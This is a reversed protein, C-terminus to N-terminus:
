PYWFLLGLSQEAETMRGYVNRCTPCTPVHPLTQAQAPTHLLTHTCTHSYACVNALTHGFVSLLIASVRKRGSTQSHVQMVHIMIQVWITSIAPVTVLSDCCRALRDWYGQKTHTQVLQSFLASVPVQHGPIETGYKLEVSITCRKFTSGFGHFDTAMNLINSCTKMTAM